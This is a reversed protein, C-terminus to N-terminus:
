RIVRGILNFFTQRRYRWHFPIITIAEDTLLDRMVAMLFVVFVVPICNVSRRRPMTM